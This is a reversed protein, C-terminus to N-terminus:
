QAKMSVLFIGAIILAIGLTQSAIVTESLYFRAILHTAIVLSGAAIPFVISLPFIRLM